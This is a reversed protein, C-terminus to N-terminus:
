IKIFKRIGSIGTSRDWIHVFYMGSKLDSIDIDIEEMQSNLSRLSRGNVDLIQIEIDNETETLKKVIIMDDSLNPEVVFDLEQSQIYELGFNDSEFDGNSNVLPLQSECYYPSFCNNGEAMTWWGYHCVKYRECNDVNFNYHKTIWKQFSLDSGVIEFMIKCVPAPPGEFTCIFAHGTHGYQPSLFTNLDNILDYINPMFNPCSEEHHLNYPFHFIGYPNDNESLYFCNGYGDVMKIITLDHERQNGYIDWCGLTTKCYDIKSHCLNSPCDPNNDAICDVEFSQTGCTGLVWFKLKISAQGGIVFFHVNQGIVEHGTQPNYWTPDNISTICNYPDIEEFTVNFTWNGCEDGSLQNMNFHCLVKAEPDCCDLKVAKTETFSGLGLVILPNFILFLYISLYISLYPFLKKM